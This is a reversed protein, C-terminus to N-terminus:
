GQESILWSFETLLTEVLKLLVARQMTPEWQGTHTAADLTWLGQTVHHFRAHRVPDAEDGSEVILYDGRRRVRLHSLKHKKFIDRVDDADDNTAQFKTV